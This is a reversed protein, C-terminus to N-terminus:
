ARRGEGASPARLGLAKDLVVSAVHGKDLNVAEAREFLSQSEAYLDLWPDIQTAASAEGSATSAQMARHRVQAHLEALFGDRFHPWLRGNDAHAADILSQPPITTGRALGTFFQDLKRRVGLGDELLLQLAMGPSGSSLHWLRELTEPEQPKLAGAQTLSTLAVTFDELSLPGLALSACRSRITPLLRAPRDALLILLAGAPPEELTKLLANAANLTLHDAKDVLAIRAGGEGSSQAFLAQAARVDDVPIATKFRKSKEDYPKRLIVVDGHTGATVRGTAETQGIELLSGASSRDPAAILFRILHYALTAKGIGDPGTILWAHPFKGSAYAAKLRDLATRHGRLTPATRPHPLGPIHDSRPLPQPEKAAM